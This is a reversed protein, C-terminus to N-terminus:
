RFSRRYMKWFVLPFYLFNLLVIGSGLIVNAGPWHLLRFLIGLALCAFGLYGSIVSVKLQADIRVASRYVNHFLLPLLAFVFFVTGVLMLISAGPWHFMKFLMGTTISVVSVFSSVYLFKKMPKNKAQTLLYHTELQIEEPGNPCITCTARHLAEAFHAGAAMEMEVVCCYHDLLDERLAPSLGKNDLMASIHAIESHGLMSM